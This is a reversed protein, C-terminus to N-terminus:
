PLRRKLRAEVEPWRSADGPNAAEDAIRADLIAKEADTVPLDQSDLTEWVAGILELREVASLKKVKSLLAEDIMARSYRM